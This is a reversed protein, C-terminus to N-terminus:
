LRVMQPITLGAEAPRGSVAFQKEKADKAGQALLALPRNL